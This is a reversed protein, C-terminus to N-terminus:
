DTRAPSNFSRHKIEKIDEHILEQKNSIKNIDVSISNLFRESVKTNTDVAESNKEVVKTINKIVFWIFFVVLAIILLVFFITLPVIGWHNASTILETTKDIVRDNM